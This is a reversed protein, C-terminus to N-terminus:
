SPCVKTPFPILHLDGQKLFLLPLCVLRTPMQRHALILQPGKRCTAPSFPWLKGESAGSRRWKFWRVVRPEEIILFQQRTGKQVTKSMEIRLLTSDEQSREWEEYHRPIRIDEWPASFAEGPRAVGNSMLLSVGVLAFWGWIIANPTAARSPTASIQQAGLGHDTEM